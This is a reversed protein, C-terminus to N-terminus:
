VAIVVPITPGDPLITVTDLEADTEEECRVPSPTLVQSAPGTPETIVLDLLLDRPHHGPSRPAAADGLLWTPFPASGPRWHGIPSTVLGVTATPRVPHWSTEQFPTGPSGSSEGM